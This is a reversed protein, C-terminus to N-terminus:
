KAIPSVQSPKKGVKSFIADWDKGKRIKKNEKGVIEKCL